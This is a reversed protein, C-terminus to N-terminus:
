TGGSMGMNPECNRNRNALCIHMLFFVLQALGLKKAVLGRHRYDFAMRCLDLLTYWRVIAVLDGPESVRPHAVECDRERALNGDPTRWWAFEVEVCLEDGQWYQAYQPLRM